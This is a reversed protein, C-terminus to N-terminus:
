PLPMLQFFYWICGEAELRFCPLPLCFCNWNVTTKLMEAVNRTKWISYIFFNGVHCKMSAYMKHDILLLILTSTFCRGEDAIYHHDSDPFCCSHLCKKVEWFEALFQGQFFIEGRLHKYDFEEVAFCCLGLGSQWKSWTSAPLSM